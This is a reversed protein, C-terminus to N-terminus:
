PTGNLQADPFASRFLRFYEDAPTYLFAEAYGNGDSSYLSRYRNLGLTSDVINMADLAVNHQELALKKISVFKEIDVVCNALMPTVTEYAACQFSLAPSCQLYAAMLVRNTEFHDVNRELFFPLYVIDPRLNMLHETVTSIVEGSPQLGGDRQHLFILKQIGIIEAGKRAEDERLEGRAAQSLHPFGSSAEGNTLYLCVVEDGALCHKHLTGGCGILEDDPHPALVLVASGKPKDISIILDKGNRAQQLQAYVELYIKMQKPTLPSINRRLLFSVKHVIDFM